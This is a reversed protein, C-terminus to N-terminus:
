AELSERSWMNRINVSGLDKEAFALIVIKINISNYFSIGAVTDLICTLGRTTDTANQLM